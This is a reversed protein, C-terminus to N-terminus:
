SLDPIREQSTAGDSPNVECWLRQVGHRYEAEVIRIGCEELLSRLDDRDFESIHDNDTYILDVGLDRRFDNLYTADFDPLEVYIYRFWSKFDLIFRRPDDLHELIHSLILVDYPRGRERLHGLADAHHFELNSHVHDRRAREIAKPDHDIGVVREVKQAMAASMDGYKCGLDLVSDSPRLHRLIFAMSYKRVPHDAFGYRQFSTELALRKFIWELDLYLRMKRDAGLPVLRHLRYIISLLLNRKKKRPLQIGM